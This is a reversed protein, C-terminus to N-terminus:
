SSRTQAVRILVQHSSVERQVFGGRLSETDMLERQNAAVLPSARNDLNAAAHGCKRSSVVDNEAKKWGAPAAWRTRDALLMEAVEPRKDQGAPL